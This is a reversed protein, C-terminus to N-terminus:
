FPFAQADGHSMLQFPPIDSCILPENLNLVESNFESLESEIEWVQCFAIETSILIFILISLKM